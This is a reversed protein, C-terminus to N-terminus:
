PRRSRVPQRNPPGSLTSSHGLDNFQIKEADLYLPRNLSVDLTTGRPLEMEPGRTLLITALGLAAGAGAGIAAGKGSRTAVAGVGAGIGTSSILVGADGAKDTDGKIKGEDEVTENGGTGANNPVAIFSVTYGNPLILTNLRLRVEGRGKVRGPRKAELIEGRVYSGAPIVVRNDQTVPFLTELYISDGPKANRTTIANHLILPLKTGAPLVIQEHRVTAKPADAPVQMPPPASAQPGEPQQALTGAALVLSAATLMGIRISNQASKM